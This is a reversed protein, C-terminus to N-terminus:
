GDAGRENGLVPTLTKTNIEMVMYLVPAVAYEQDRLATTNTKPRRM